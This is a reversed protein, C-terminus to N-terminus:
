PLYVLRRAGVLICLGLFRLLMRVVAAQCEVSLSLVYSSSIEPERAAQDPRKTQSKLSRACRTVSGVGLPPGGGCYQRVGPLPDWSFSDWSFDLNM